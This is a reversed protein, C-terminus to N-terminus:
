LSAELTHERAEQAQAQRTSTLVAARGRVRGGTVSAPEAVFGEGARAAIGEALADLERMVAPMTRLEAFARRNWKIRVRAM